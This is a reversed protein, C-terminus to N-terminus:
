EGFGTSSGPLRGAAADADAEANARHPWATTCLPQFAAHRAAHGLVTPAAPQQAPCVRHWTPVLGSWRGARGSRGAGPVQVSFSMDSPGGPVQLEDLLAMLGPYTRENFVLFGTDVGHTVAQGQANPLSVDVTHTHGGFYSGAEFLTVRAQGRLRHAAALGSIGSGIVAVKMVENRDM